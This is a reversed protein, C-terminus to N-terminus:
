FYKAETLPVHVDTLLDDPETSDPHNLYVEFPPADMLERGSDPLWRGYLFDYTQSLNEYPGEHTVVVYDGGALERVGIHDEAVVSADVTLAADYRIREPPTIAPDDWSVGLVTAGAILARPAAWEMLTEFAKGVENYPGVHRVFAIRQPQLTVIKANDTMPGGLHNEEDRFVRPAIGFMTKFARSFAEHTQFGADFAVHTVAQTTQKLTVAARELRLRRIYSHPPEGVLARFLRHFHFPSIGNRQALEDLGINDNLHEQIFVVARIIRERHNRLTEDKM